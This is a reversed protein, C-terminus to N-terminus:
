GSLGGMSAGVDGENPTNETLKAALADTNAKVADFAADIKGQDASPAAAKVDERLKDFAKLLGDEVTTQRGVEALLEDMTRAMENNEELNIELAYLIAGLMREIRALRTEIHAM